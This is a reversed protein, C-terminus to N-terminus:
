VRLLVLGPMDLREHVVDVVHATVSNGSGDRDRVGFAAGSTTEECGAVCFDLEYVTQLVDEVGLFLCGMHLDAAALLRTPQAVV